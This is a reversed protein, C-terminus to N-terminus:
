GERKYFAVEAILESLIRGEWEISILYHSMWGPARNCERFEKAMYGKGRQVTLQRRSLEQDYCVWGTIWKNRNNQGACIDSMVEIFGM